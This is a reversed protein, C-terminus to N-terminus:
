IICTKAVSGRGGVCVCVCQLDCNRICDGNLCLGCESVRLCGRVVGDEGWKINASFCCMLSVVGGDCGDVVWWGGTM